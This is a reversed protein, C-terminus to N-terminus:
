VANGLQVWGWSVSDDEEQIMWQQRTAERGGCGKQSENLEGTGWINSLSESGEEAVKWSQRNDEMSKILVIRSHLISAM